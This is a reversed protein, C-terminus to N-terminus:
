KNYSTHKEKIGPVYADAQHKDLIKIFFKLFFLGLFIEM